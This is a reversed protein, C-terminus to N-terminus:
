NTNQDYQVHIQKLARVILQHKEPESFLDSLIKKIMTEAVNVSLHEIDRRMNNFEENSVNVAEDIIQKAQNNIDILAKQKLKEIYQQTEFLLKSADEQANNIIKSKEQKISNMVLKIHKATM